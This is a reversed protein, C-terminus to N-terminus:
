AAALRAHSRVRAKRLCEEVTHTWGVTLTRPHLRQVADEHSIALTEQYTLISGVVYTQVDIRRGQRVRQVRVRRSRAAWCTAPASVKFRPTKEHQTYPLRM